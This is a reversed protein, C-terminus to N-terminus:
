RPKDGGALNCGWGARRLRTECKSRWLQPPKGNDEGWQQRYHNGSSQNKESNGANLKGIHGTPTGKRRVEYSVDFVRHLHLRRRVRHRTHRCRADQNNAGNTHGEVLNAEVMGAAFAFIAAAVLVALRSIVRKGHQTTENEAAEARRRWEDREYELRVTVDHADIMARVGRFLDM